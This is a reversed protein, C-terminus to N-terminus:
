ASDSDRRSGAGAAVPVTATRGWALVQVRAIATRPTRTSVGPGPGVSVGNSASALSSTLRDGVVCIGRRPEERGVPAAEDGAGLPAAVAPHALDSLRSRRAGVVCVGM